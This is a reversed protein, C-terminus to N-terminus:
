QEGELFPKLTKYFPNVIIEISCGMAPNLAITAEGERPMLSPLSPSIMGDGRWFKNLGQDKNLLWLRVHLAAIEFM